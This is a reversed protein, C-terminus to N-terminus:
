PAQRTLTARVRGLEGGNPGARSVTLTVTGGAGPEFGYRDLLLTGDHAVELRYLYLAHQDRRGWFLPEGDLPNPRRGGGLVAELGRAPQALVDPRASPALEVDATEGDLTTWRATVDREGVDLTAELTTVPANLGNEAVAGRWTGTLAALPNDEAAPGPAALLLLVAAPWWCRRARGAVGQM